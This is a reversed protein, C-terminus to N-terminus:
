AHSVSACSQYQVFRPLQRHITSMSDPQLRWVDHDWWSQIQVHHLFINWCQMLQLRTLLYTCGLREATGHCLYAISELRRWGWCYCCCCCRWSVFVMYFRLHILSHFYVQITLTQDDTVSWVSHFGHSSQFRNLPLGRIYIYILPLLAYIVDHMIGM